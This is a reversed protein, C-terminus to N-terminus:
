SRYLLKDPAQWKYKKTDVRGREDFEIGEAELRARQEEAGPRLSIKGQANIVRWWPVDDPCAAMAGGVWRARFADYDKLPMGDPPPILAGIQGYTAVRGSPIQLVIDWVLAHFAHPNPPSTFAPM